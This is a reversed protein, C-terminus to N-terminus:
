TRRSYLLVLNLYPQPLVEYSAAKYAVPLFLELKKGGEEEKVKRRQRPTPPQM